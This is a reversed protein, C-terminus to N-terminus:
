ELKNSKDLNEKSCLPRLNTYHNLQIIDDITKATDLPIFHDIQWTRKSNPIYIGYNDWNMWPEFLSEFYNKFFEISCGLIDVTRGTKKQKKRKFSERITKSIKERFLYMQDTKRKKIRYNRNTIKIKDKNKEKYIKVRLKKKEKNEQYRERDKKRIIELELETLIKKKKAWRERRKANIKDKNKQQYKKQRLKKQEITKM